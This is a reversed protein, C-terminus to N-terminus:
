LRIGGRMSTTNTGVNKKHTTAAYKSFQNESHSQSMKHRQM